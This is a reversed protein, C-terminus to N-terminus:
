YVLVVKMRGSPKKMEVVGAKIQQVPNGNVSVQRVAKGEPSPAHLRIWSPAQRAPTEIELVLSGDQNSARLALPGYYTQAREIVVGKGEEFWANPANRLLHLGEESEDEFVLMNRLHNNIVSNLVPLAHIGDRTEDGGLFRRSVGGAAMSYFGEIFKEREDRLYRLYINWSYCPETSAMEFPLSSREAFDSWNPDWRGADPGETFWKLAWDM